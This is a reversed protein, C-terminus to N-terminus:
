RKRMKTQINKSEQGQKLEKNCKATKMKNKTKKKNTQKNTQQTHTKTKNKTKTKKQPPSTIM